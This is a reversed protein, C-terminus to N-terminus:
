KIALILVVFLLLLTLLSIAGYFRVVADIFPNGPFERTNRWLDFWSLKIPIYAMIIVGLRLMPDSLAREAPLLMYRAVQIIVYLLLFLWPLITFSVYQKFVTSLEMESIRDCAASSNFARVKQKLKHLIFALFLAMIVSLGLIYPDSALIGLLKM